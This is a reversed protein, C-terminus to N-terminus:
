IFSQAVDFAETSGLIWPSDVEQYLTLEKKRVLSGLASEYIMMELKRAELKLCVALM